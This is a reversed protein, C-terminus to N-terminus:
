LDSVRVLVRKLVDEEPDYYAGEVSGVLASFQGDVNTEACEPRFGGSRKPMMSTFNQTKKKSDWYNKRIM